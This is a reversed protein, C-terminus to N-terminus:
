EGTFEPSRRERWARLGEQLDSSQECREILREAEVRDLSGQAAHLLIRKMGQVALPALDALRDVLASVAETFGSRPVCQSLFGVRLLEGAELEEAALLIRNATSLGLREVYRTLGGPPYCVGLKAAPVSLRMGEVGVRFDCCLALEAGGGYVNGNLACVTPVRLEVLHDTMTEFIAGSMEGSQMQSLSAGSCFTTEGAGTLILVRVDRSEDVEALFAKIRVVDSAQLANHRDPRDLTIRAIRGDRALRLGASPQPETV